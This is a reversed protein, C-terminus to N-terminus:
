RAAAVPVGAAAAGTEVVGVLTSKGSGPVGLFEVLRM